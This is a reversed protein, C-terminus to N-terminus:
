RMWDAQHTFKSAQCTSIKIDTICKEQELWYRTIHLVLPSKQYNSLKWTRSKNTISDMLIISTILVVANPRLNYAILIMCHLPEFFFLQHEKTLM